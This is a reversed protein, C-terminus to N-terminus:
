RYVKPYVHELNKSIYSLTELTIESIEVDDQRADLIQVLNSFLEEDVFYHPYTNALANVLDIGKADSNELKLEAEIEGDDIISNKAMSVLYKVSEKDLLVPVIREVLLKITNYYVSAEKDVFKLVEK